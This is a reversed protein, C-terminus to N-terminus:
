IWITDFYGGEGWLMTCGGEGVGNVLSEEESQQFMHLMCREHVNEFVSWNELKQGEYKPM